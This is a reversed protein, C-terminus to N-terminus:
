AASPSRGHGVGLEVSHMSDWLKARVESALEIGEEGDELWRHKDQEASNGACFLM